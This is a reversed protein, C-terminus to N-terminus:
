IRKFTYNSSVYKLAQLPEAKLVEDQPALKVENNNEDNLQSVSASESSAEHVPNHKKGNFHRRVDARGGSKISFVSKCDSCYAQYQNHGPKVSKWKNEWDSNYKTKYKQM